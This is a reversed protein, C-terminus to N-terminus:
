RLSRAHLSLGGDAFVSHVEASLLDGEAFFNRMALQDEQTRRRQDGGELNISSLLLAADLRGGVDVRWRKSGVERIRGVVVDGM